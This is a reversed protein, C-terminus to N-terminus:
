KAACERVTGKLVACAHDLVPIVVEMCEKVAKTSGPFNIILTRNHAVAVGRSLMSRPAKAASQIRMAEAIGPIVKDAIATTAEPTVDRPSLGTGGTTLVVDANMEESLFRLRQTIQDQEDPIIGYWIVEHDIEHLCEQIAPGSKDERLGKSGKDSITVIGVRLKM